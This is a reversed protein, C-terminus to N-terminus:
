QQAKREEDCLLELVYCELETRLVIGLVAYVENGLGKYNGSRIKAIQASFRNYYGLMIIGEAVRQNFEDAGYRAQLRPLYHKFTGWAESDGYRRSTEARVLNSLQCIRDCNKTSGPYPLSAQARVRNIFAQLPCQGSPQSM